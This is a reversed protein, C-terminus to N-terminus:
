KKGPRRWNQIVKRERKSMELSNAAVDEIVTTGAAISAGRHVTVPAILATNSGIFVNDGIITQHKDAGDYNCTIVGAGVNVRKGIDSDGIYTLHNAKSGAQINARKVEVFNGIHVDQALKTQPRIRSFPGIKNRKGIVANDIVCNALISVEDGIDADKIVCNPGISVHNGIRVSGEFVVNVDVFVDHGTTIDGRLDFRGPDALTVGRGMLDRAQNYQYYRELESLQVRDNVGKVEMVAGPRVSRIARRERVALAVVDTLLWEKQANNNDLSGLWTKLWASSIVMVGTNIENIDKEEGRADQEEIIQIIDGNDDRLIRGYGAPDDVLATLIGFGTAEAEAVLMELTQQTILPVDGCLILVNDGDPIHDMAQLLAHGTGLQEKQEVWKVDLAPLASQLTEGGYGYILYTERCPLRSATAVVHEILTKGALKHMVKPLSSQMRKGKGAALIVISLSM